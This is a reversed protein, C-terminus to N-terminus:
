RKRKLRTKLKKLSITPQKRREQLLNWFTPATLSRQPSETVPLSPYPFHLTHLPISGRPVKTILHQPLPGVYLKIPAYFYYLIGNSHFNLCIPLYTVPTEDRFKSSSGQPDNRQSVPSGNM